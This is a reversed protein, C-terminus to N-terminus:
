NLEKLRPSRAVVTVVSPNAEDKNKQPTGMLYVGLLLSLARKMSPPSNLFDFWNAPFKNHSAFTMAEVFSMKKMIDVSHCGEQFRTQLRTLNEISRKIARHYELDEETKVRQENKLMTERAGTLWSGDLYYIFLFLKIPNVIVPELESRSVPMPPGGLGFQRVFNTILAQGILPSTGKIAGEGHRETYTSSSPAVHGLTHTSEIGILRKFPEEEKGLSKIEIPRVYNVTLFIGNVVGKSPLNDKNCSVNRIDVLARIFINNGEIENLYDFIEFHEVEFSGVM